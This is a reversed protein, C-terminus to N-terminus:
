QNFKRLSAVHIEAQASIVNMTPAFPYPDRERLKWVASAIMSETDQRSKQSFRHAVGQLVENL